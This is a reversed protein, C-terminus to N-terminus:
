GTFPLSSTQFVDFTHDVKMVDAPLCAQAREIYVRHATVWDVFMAKLYPVSPPAAAYRLMDDFASFAPVQEHGFLNLHRAADLYMFELEAHHKRQIESVMRAFPAPGFRTAFTNCMQSMVGKDIAGCASLYAPFTILVYLMIIYCPPFQKGPFAISVWRPLQAIIHPDTGQWSSGCGPTDRRDANCLYRNTLLFYDSPIAKVRRAIPNDNYGSFLSHEAHAGFQFGVMKQSIVVVHVNSPTLHVRYIHHCGCLSTAHVYVILNSAKRPLKMSFLSLTSRASSFIEVSTAALSNIIESTRRSKYYHRV